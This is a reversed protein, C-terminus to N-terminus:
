ISKLYKITEDDFGYDFIASLTSVTQQIKNYDLLLDRSILFGNISARESEGRIDKLAKTYAISKPNVLYNFQRESYAMEKSYISLTELTSLYLHDDASFTDNITKAEQHFNSDTLLEFVFYKRLQDNITVSDLVKKITELQNM